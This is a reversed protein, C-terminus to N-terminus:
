ATKIADNQAATPQNAQQQAELAAKKKAERAQRQYHKERCNPTCYMARPSVSEFEKGCFRCTFKYPEGPIILGEKIKKDREKKKEYKRRNRARKVKLAEAAAIEEPTIPKPPVQFDGIFNLYIDVRMTREGDIKVPAHILIRDVFETIMAPTLEPFDRYKHVLAMFRDIRLTDQNFSDLQQQDAELQKELEAQEQEYQASLSDYRKEPIKGMAYSEYLKKILVDLEEYRKKEKSIKHKLEKAKDGNKIESAERVKRIFEEENEVAYSSVSRITDLVLAKLAKEPIRRSSCEKTERENTLTVTSCNFSSQIHISGDKRLKRCRHNYMKAGCDACFVLGTLPTPENDITVHHRTKRMKQVLEWTDPDVIAEHTNEIILWEAQPKYVRKDKYSKKESRFNVTHGMYEPKGLIVKVTHGYWDYPRTLDKRNKHVGMQHMAQYYSPCQVKEATLIKAIEYPGYGEAAMQFIRKIVAAAEEDILWHNKDDPDKKYGYIANTTVPKGSTGKLRIAATLKKSQDRLYYENMVNLLPTFETTNQDDSDVGNAIAIFRVDHQRFFVETYFGTLLYNRGVRSMDKVIVTGVKGAKVDAELRKWGPRDFNGGSWGDDTYHVINTYGREAAARELFIKQNAISNSDGALDDDRSLREYLATIKQHDGHESEHGPSVRWPKARASMKNDETQRAAM